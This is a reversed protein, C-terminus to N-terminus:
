CEKCFVVVDDPLGDWMFAEVIRGQTVEQARHGSPGCHSAVLLRLQLEVAARPVYIKGGVVLCDRDSDYILDLRKREDPPM